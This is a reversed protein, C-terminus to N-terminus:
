APTNEQDSIINKQQQKQEFLQSKKTGVYKAKDFMKQKTQEVM